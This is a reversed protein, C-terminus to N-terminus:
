TRSKAPQRREGTEKLWLSVQEPEMTEGVVRLLEAALRELDTEVRAAAAFQALAQAADYKRRYFRRDIFRQARGRLPNFLAAILLTSIVIVVPSQRGSVQASLQQLVVVSGFYVMALAVSVVGYVLTKRIIIDIEYLRYRLIPVAIASTVIPVFIFDLIGRPWPFFVFPISLLVWSAMAFIVWKIQQRELDNGHRFRTIQSWLAALFIAASTALLGYALSVIGPLQGVHLIADPLPMSALPAITVARGAARAEALARGLDSSLYALMGAVLLTEALLAWFVPRWRASLLRGDPFIVFIYGLLSYTIASLPAWLNFWFLLGTTPEAGGALAVEAATRAFSTQQLLTVLLMLWGIRNEPRKYTLLLAQVTFSVSAALTVLPNLESKAVVARNVVLFIAFAVSVVGSYIDFALSIRRRWRIM